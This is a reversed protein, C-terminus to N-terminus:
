LGIDVLLISYKSSVAIYIMTEVEQDMAESGKRARQSIQRKMEKMNTRVPVQCLTTNNSYCLRPLSTGCNVFERSQINAQISAISKIAAQNDIFITMSKNRISKVMLIEAAAGKHYRYGRYKSYVIFNKLSAEIKLSDVVCWIRFRSIKHSDNRITQSCM